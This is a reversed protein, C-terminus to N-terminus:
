QLLSVSPPSSPGHPQSFSLNPTEHCTTGVATSVAARRDPGPALRLADHRRHESIFFISIASSSRAAASGTLAQAALGAPRGRAPRTAASARRGARARRSPRLRSRRRRDRRALSTITPPTPGSGNQMSQSGSPRSSTTEPRSPSRSRRSASPESTVWASRFPRASGGHFSITTSPRPLAYTLLVPKSKGPPSNAGPLMTEDRGVAHSRCTASPTANGFPMATVGSLEVSITASDYAFRSVANSM